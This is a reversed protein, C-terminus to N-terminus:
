EGFTRRLCYGFFIDVSNVRALSAVMEFALQEMGGAKGIAMWRLNILIKLSCSSYMQFLIPEM